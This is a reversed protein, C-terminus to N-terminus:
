KKSKEIFAELDSLSGNFIDFDNALHNVKYTQSKQWFTWEKNEWAKPLHPKNAKTYNAIWLPYKAFEPNNLHSNGVGINTYIIPLIGTKNEVEKLFILLNKQIVEVTEKSNLSAGEFDVVPPIDGAQLDVTNTFHTAQKVPNDKCYYFHYTGRVFGKEKIKSWNEKFKPDTYTIGGTSKCFVFKLSDAKSTLSDIENHQFKSIDIGYIPSLETKDVKVAKTERDSAQKSLSENPNNCSLIGGVTILIFLTLIPSTKKM